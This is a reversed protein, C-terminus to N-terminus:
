GRSDSAGPLATALSSERGFRCEGPRILVGLLGVMHGTIGQKLMPAKRASAIKADPSCRPSSGLATLRPLRDSRRDTSEAVGATGFPHRLLEAIM